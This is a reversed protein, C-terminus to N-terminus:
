RLQTPLILTDYELYEYSKYKKRIEEEFAQAQSFIETFFQAALNITGDVICKELFWPICGTFDEVEDKTYDKPKIGKREWWQDM